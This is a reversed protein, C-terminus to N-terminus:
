GNGGAGPVPLTMLLLRLIALRTKAGLKRLLIAGHYKVTRPSIGLSAAIERTQRGLCIMELVRRQQASLAARAALRRFKLRILDSLIGNDLCRLEVGLRRGRREVRVIRYAKEGDELLGIKAGRPRRGSFWPCGACPEDAGELFEWCRQGRFRSVAVRRRGCRVALLRGERAPTLDVEYTRDCPREKRRSRPPLIWEASLHEAAVKSRTSNIRLGGTWASLPPRM